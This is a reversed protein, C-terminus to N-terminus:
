APIFSPGSGSGVSDSVENVSVTNLFEFRVNAPPLFSYYYPSPQLTVPGCVPRCLTWVPGSDAAVGGCPLASTACIPTEDAGSSSPTHTRARLASCHCPGSRRIAPM